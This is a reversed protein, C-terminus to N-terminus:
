KADTPLARPAIQVKGQTSPRKLAAFREPVEELGIVDTILGGPQLVGSDVARVVRGFDERRYYLVFSLDVERHLAELPVVTDPVMCVGVVVVRGDHGCARVAEAILGPVGVCEVVVRARQGTLDAFAAGVDDSGPDVVATAGSALALARRGPAPDSVVVASAGLVRAWLAVALGVPGAGLVLLPEAPRLAARDLAHLAVALPEVLAGDGADVAAPLLELQSVAVALHEAYAGPVQLGNLAYSACRAALGAVCWRCSGCGVLPYGAALAGLLETPVGAGVEAVRGAYEHGLVSGPRGLTDSLHLDSGCIGARLVELVVEGPGAVPDPRQEVVLASGARPLVVARM